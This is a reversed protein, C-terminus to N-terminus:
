AQLVPELSYIGIQSIGWIQTNLVLEELRGEEGEEGRM